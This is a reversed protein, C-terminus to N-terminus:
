TNASTNMYMDLHNFFAPAISSSTIAPHVYLFTDGKGATGNQHVM